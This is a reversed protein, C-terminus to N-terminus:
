FLYVISLSLGTPGLYDFISGELLPTTTDELDYEDGKVFMYGLSVACEITWHRSLIWDYGGGVGLSALTADKLLFNKLNPFRGYISSLDWLRGVSAKGGMMYASLFWGNFDECFWRRVEPRLLFHNLTVNYADFLRVSGELQITWKPAMAYEAALNFSATADHLLNTKLAFDNQARVEQAALALLAATIALIIRKIMQM